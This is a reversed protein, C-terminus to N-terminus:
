LFGREALFAMDIGSNKAPNMLKEVYKGVIDNELNVIDGIKRYSLITQSATHPIISVSFNDAGVKAVTLSIGDIAVSGKEIIYRMISDDTKITYWVAIGDNKIAIVTGTGDIHGSVIHGGFRGGASMARELNVSSGPRLSGLSSRSLTENMVDARFIGGDYETVTLCVGNVAISDGIRVDSLVKEAQIRIFSNSGNRRVERVTGIEEIIGTFM